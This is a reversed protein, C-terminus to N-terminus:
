KNGSGHERIKESQEIYYVASHLEELLYILFQEM